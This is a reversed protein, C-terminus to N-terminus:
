DISIYTIKELKQFNKNSIVKRPLIMIRIDPDLYYYSTDNDLRRQEITEVVQIPIAPMKRSNIVQIQWTGELEKSLQNVSQKVVTKKENSVQAFAQGGTGRWLLSSFFCTSSFLIMMLLIKLFKYSSSYITTRFIM